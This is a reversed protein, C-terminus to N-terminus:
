QAKPAKEEYNKGNEKEDTDSSLVIATKVETDMAAKQEKAEEEELALTGMAMANFWTTNPRSQAYATPIVQSMIILFVMLLVLISPLIKKKTKM